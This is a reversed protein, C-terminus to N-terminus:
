PLFGRPSACEETEREAVGNVQVVSGKKVDEVTGVEVDSRFGSRAEKLLRVQRQYMKWFNWSGWMQASMFLVHLMPTTVKFAITWRSWLSGFLWM